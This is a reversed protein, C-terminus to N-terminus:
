SSVVCGTLPTVPLVNGLSPRLFLLLSSCLTHKDKHFCLRPNIFLAAPTNVGSISLRSLPPLIQGIWKLDIFSRYCSRRKASRGVLVFGSLPTEQTFPKHGGFIHCAGDTVKLDGCLFRGLRGRQPQFLCVFHLTEQTKM